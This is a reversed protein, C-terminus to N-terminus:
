NSVKEATDDLEQTPIDSLLLLADAASNVAVAAEERTRAEEGVATKETAAVELAVAEERPAILKKRSVIRDYREKVLSVLTKTTKSKNHGLHLTPLWDPNNIDYLDAPKGSLFHRSCIRDNSLVSETINKRSIVALFSNRRKKSLELDQPGKHKIVAPIRFFFHGQRSWIAQPLWYSFLSGNRILKTRYM